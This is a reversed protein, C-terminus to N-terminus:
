DASRLIHHPWMTYIWRGIERGRFIRVPRAEKDAANAALMCITPFNAEGDFICQEATGYDGSGADVRIHLSYRM